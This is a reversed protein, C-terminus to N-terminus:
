KKERYKRRMEKQEQTLKQRGKSDQNAAKSKLVAYNVPNKIKPCFNDPQCVALDKYYAENSCNPPLIKGQQKRYRLQGKLTVERLEEHNRTNWDYLIEEIKEWEYGTNALFNILAFLSRKRGDELGALINQICPPFFDAPIAEQLNEIDIMNKNAKEKEKYQEERIEKEKGTNKFELVKEILKTSETSSANSPDLFRYESVTANIPEAWEKKFNLIKEPDFPISCLGSKEHLSYVMRYLHRSSILLTDVEIVSLPSFEKYGQTSGCECVKKKEIPKKDMLTKCKDCKIYEEDTKVLKGCQPCIHEFAFTEPKKNIRKGCKSCKWELLKEQEKEIAKSIHELTFTYEGGFTVTNESENYETHKRGIYEILYLSIDKCMDPFLKRTEEGSITKPFAEFPVGIHFGKNGSFKVSVSKIGHEKLSRILLWTIIKSLKWDPIDIDLVLDWGKRIEDLEEPKLGTQLQLPNFWREESVHFSTTKQKAFELVDKPYQLTDPRKGFGKEGFKVAVERDEGGLVMEKQIDERKYHKLVTGIDIM